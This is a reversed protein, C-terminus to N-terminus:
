KETPLKIKEWDHKFGYKINYIDTFGNQALINSAVVTRSGSRCILIIEKSLNKNSLDYVENLFNRNFVRKGNKAYFVPINISDKARLEKFEAKTRVDILLAGNQQMKYAQTSSIDDKYLKATNYNIQANLFTSLLLLFFLIKKM